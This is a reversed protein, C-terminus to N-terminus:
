LYEYPNAKAPDRHAQLGQYFLYFTFSYLKKNTRELHVAHFSDLYPTKEPWVFPSFVSWFFSRIQVSERLSM